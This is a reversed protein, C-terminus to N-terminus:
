EYQMIVRALEELTIDQHCLRHDQYVNFRHESKFRMESLDNHVVLNAPSHRLLKLADKKQLERDATNTLKFGVLIPMQKAVPNSLVYNPLRNILKFNHHTRIVLEENSAIKPIDAPQYKKGNLEIHSVSYDSVAATHIILDYSKEALLRRLLSDLSRFSQFEINITPTEPLSSSKGHIFTVHHKPSLFEALAAGTRGSSFNTIYRVGDIPEQTAGATILITM